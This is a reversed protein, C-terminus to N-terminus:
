GFALLSSDTLSSFSALVRTFRVRLFLLPVFSFEGCVRVEGKKRGGMTPSPDDVDMSGSSAAAAAVGEVKKQAEGLERLLLGVTPVKAPDFSSVKSPDIPVCVRDSVRSVFLLTDTLEQTTLLSIFSVLPGV